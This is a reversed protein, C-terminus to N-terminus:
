LPPTCSGINLTFQANSNTTTAAASCETGNANYVKISASSVPGEVATGTVTASSTSTSSTSSSTSSSGSIAASVNASYTSVKTSDAVNSVYTSNVAKAGRSSVSQSTTLDTSIGLDSLSSLGLLALATKKADSWQTAVASTPKVSDYSTTASGSVGSVATKLATLASVQSGTQDTIRLGDTSYIENLVFLANSRAWARVSDTGFGSIGSSVTTSTGDAKKMNGDLSDDSLDQGITKLIAEINTVSVGGAAKATRRVTESLAESAQVFTAINTNGLSYAIPNFSSNSSGDTNADVGFGFANIVSTARSAIDSSASTTTVGADTLNTKDKILAHYILTSFPSINAKSSASSAVISRMTGVPVTVGAASHLTDTGGSLELVLPYTCSSGSISFTADSNTTVTAASCQTGGANYVKVTGSKVPGDVALGGIGPDSSGGGGGCAAVGMTFLASLALISTSKIM